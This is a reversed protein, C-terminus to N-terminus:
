GVAVIPAQTMRLPGGHDRIQSTILGIVIWVMVSVVLAAGFYSLAREASAKMLKPLGLYLLYLSYLGGIIGFLWGLVPILDFVGAVWGATGAYAVVKFAQVPDRTGGFSPALGDVVWALVHVGALTLVYSVLAESVAVLFGPRYAVEMVGDGFLLVGVLSCVAPIAALPAVYHWFLDNVTAPERDIVDWTATPRLLIAKIRGILSTGAGPEVVSM